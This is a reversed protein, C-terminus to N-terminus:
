TRVVHGLEKRWSCIVVFVTVHAGSFTGLAHSFTMVEKKSTPLSGRRLGITQASPDPVRRLSPSNATM